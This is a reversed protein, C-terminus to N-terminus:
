NKGNKLMGILERMRALQEATMFPAARNCFDDLQATDLKGQARLGAAQAFLESMLGDRSMNGYREMQEAFEPPIEGYPNQGAQGGYPNGYGGYGNGYANDYPNSYPNGNDAYSQNGYGQTYGANGYSNGYANGGGHENAGYGYREAGGSARDDSYNGFGRYTGKRGDGYGDNRQNM